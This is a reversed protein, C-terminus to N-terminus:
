FQRMEIFITNTHFLIWRFSFLPVNPALCYCITRRLHPQQIPYFASLQVSITSVVPICSTHQRVACRTRVASRVTRCPSGAAREGNCGRGAVANGILRGLRAFSVPEADSFDSRVIAMLELRLEMPVNLIQADTM